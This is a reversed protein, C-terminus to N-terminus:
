SDLYKSRDLSCCLMAYMDSFALNNRWLGAGFDTKVVDGFDASAM